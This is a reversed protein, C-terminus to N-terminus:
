GEKGHIREWQARLFDRHQRALRVAERADTARMSWVKDLAVEPELLIRCEGEASLVHVNPPPHDNTHVVFDFGGHRLVTPM